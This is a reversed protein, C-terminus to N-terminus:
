AVTFPSLQEFYKKRRWREKKFYSTM